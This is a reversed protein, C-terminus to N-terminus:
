PRVFRFPNAECRDQSDWKKKSGNKELSVSFCKSSMYHIRNAFLIHEPFSCPPLRGITDYLFIPLFKRPKLPNLPNAIVLSPISALIQTVWSARLKCLVISQASFKQSTWILPLCVRMRLSLKIDDGLGKEESPNEAQHTVTNRKFKHMQHDVFKSNLPPIENVLKNDSIQQEQFLSQHHWGIRRLKQDLQVIATWSLYSYVPLLHYLVAM